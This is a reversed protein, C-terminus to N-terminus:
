ESRSPKGRKWQYGVLMLALGFVTGILYPAIQINHETGPVNALRGGVTMVLSMLILPVRGWFGKVRAALSVGVGLLFGAAFYYAFPGSHEARLFMPAFLGGEVMACVMMPWVNLNLPNLKEAAAAFKEPERERLHALARTVHDQAEVLGAGPVAERYHRIAGRVDMELLAARIAEHQAGDLQRVGFGLESLRHVRWVLALPLVGAIVIAFAVLLMSIDGRYIGEWVQARVVKVM